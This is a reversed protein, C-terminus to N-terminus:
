FLSPRKFIYNVIPCDTSKAAAAGRQQARRVWEHTVLREALAILADCAAADEIALCAQMLRM